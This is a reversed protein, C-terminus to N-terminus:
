QELEKSLITLILANKSIGIKKAKLELIKNIEHPIRLTISKQKKKVSEM